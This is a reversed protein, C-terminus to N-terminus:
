NERTLDQLTKQKERYISLLEGRLHANYRNGEVLERCESIAADILLLKERYSILMPSVPQDLRPAVLESLRNISEVYEAEAREIDELALETLLRIRVDDALQERTDLSGGGRLLVWLVACSALGLLAVAGAARWNRSFGALLEEFGVHWRSRGATSESLLDERIKPWLLPSEWTKHMHRALRSMDIRAQMRESCSACSAAHAKLEANHEADDRLLAQEFSECDM